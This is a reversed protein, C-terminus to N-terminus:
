SPTNQRLALLREKVLQLRKRLRASERRLGEEDLPEDGDHMVRALENWALGKDIRLVLLMRDDEPLADRFAAFRERNETRLYSQTETRPRAEFGVMSSGDPLPAHRRERERIEQRYRVSTNRAVVYLWTRLTSQWAFRELNSWLSESVRAWVEAADEEDRHFAVLFGYIEPGYGRIAAETAARLDGRDCADRITRELAERKGAEMGWSYAM